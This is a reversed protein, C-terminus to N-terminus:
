RVDSCTLLCLLVCSNPLPCNATQEPLILSPLKSFFKPHTKSHRQAWVKTLFEFLLFIQERCSEIGVGTTAVPLLLYMQTMTVEYILVTLFFYKIIISNEPSKSVPFNFITTLLHRVWKQTKLPPSGRRLSTTSGMRGEKRSRCRSCDPKSVVLPLRPSSNQMRLHLSSFWFLMLYFCIDRSHLLLHM